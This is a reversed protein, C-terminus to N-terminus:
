LAGEVSVQYKELLQAYANASSTELQDALYDALVKKRVTELQPLRAETRDSIYIFHSGFGSEVPGSWQGVPANMVRGVFPTRGFIKAIDNADLHVYRTKGPFRKGIKGVGDEGLTELQSQIESLRQFPTGNELYLHSFSVRAPELYRERNAQYYHTLQREGPPQPTLLDEQLFSFKQAVRRRVIEDGADLGLSLGERWYIEERIHNEILKDLQTQSPLVGFQQQYISSIRQIDQQAIVIKEASQTPYFWSYLGYLVGGLVVFHLFPEHILTQLTKM